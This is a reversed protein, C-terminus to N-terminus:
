HFAIGKNGQQEAPCHEKGDVNGGLSVKCAYVFASSLHSKGFLLVHRLQGGVQRGSKSRFRFFRAGDEDPDFELISPSPFAIRLVTELAQRVLDFDVESQNARLQQIIGVEQLTEDTFLELEISLLVLRLLNNIDTSCLERIHQRIAWATSPEALAERRDVETQLVQVLEKTLTEIEDPESESMAFLWTTQAEEEQGALLLLLGLYWYHSQVEPETEIAQEYLRTAQAYKGQVLYHNAQQQWDTLLEVSFLPTMTM